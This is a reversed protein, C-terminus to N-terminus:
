AVQNSLLLLGSCSVATLRRELYEGATLYTGVSVLRDRCCSVYCGPRSVQTSADVGCQQERCSLEVTQFRM